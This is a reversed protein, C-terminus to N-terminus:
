RDNCREVFICLGPCEEAADVVNALLHDPVDVTQAGKNKPQGDPGLGTKDTHAKVYYLGDDHAIFIEPCIERCIGDGTCLEQDLWVRFESM